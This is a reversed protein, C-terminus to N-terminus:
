AWGGKICPSTMNLFSEIANRAHIDLRYEVLDTNRQYEHFNFNFGLKVLFGEVMKILSKDTNTMNLYRDTHTHNLHPRTYIHFHGESEYFGRVFEKVLEERSLLEEIDRPNLNKYWEYFKKSNAVIKHYKKWGSERPKLGIKSIARSFSRAFKEESTALAVLYEYRGHHNIKYVSGDGKLVGLIYALEKTPELIPNATSKPFINPHGEKYKFFCFRSCFNRSSRM